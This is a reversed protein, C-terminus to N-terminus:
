IVGCTFCLIIGSCRDMKPGFALDSLDKETIPSIRLHAGPLNIGKNPKLLGGVVVRTHYTGRSGM